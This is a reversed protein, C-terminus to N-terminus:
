RHYTREFLSAAAFGCFGYPEGLVARYMVRAASCRLRLPRPSSLGTANM